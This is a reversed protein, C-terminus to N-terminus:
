EKLGEVFLTGLNLSVRLDNGKSRRYNVSLKEIRVAKKMKELDELLDSLGRINAGLQFEVRSLPYEQWNSPSLGKYSNLSLAYNQLFAQVWQQTHASVEALSNGQIVLRSIGALTAQTEQHSQKKKSLKQLRQQLLVSEQSDKSVAAELEDRQAQLPSYLIVWWVLVPALILASFLVWQHMKKSIPKM